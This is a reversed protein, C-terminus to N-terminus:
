SVRRELLGIRDTGDTSPLRVFMQFKNGESFRRVVRKLTDPKADLETVLDEISRPGKMLLHKIRQQLPLKSALSEVTALEVSRIRPQGGSFRLELGVPQSKRGLNNKKHFFAITIADDTAEETAQKLHWVSRSLNFFFVSGFISTSDDTAGERAKPLHALNLCGRGLRRVANFYGLAGEEDTLKGKVAPGISDVFLYDIQHAHIENALRDVSDVLPRTARVYRVHPMQAGFMEELRNRHEGADMEYDIFMPRVGLQSLRGAAHLGLMSKGTDGYAAWTMPQHKPFPLKDVMYVDDATSRPQEALVVSGDGTQEARRVKLALDDILVQWDVDDRSTKTLRQLDLAVSKRASLSSLNCNDFVQLTHDKLTYTGALACKITLSCRMEGNHDRRLQEVHFHSGAEDAEFVYTGDSIRYLHRAEEAPPPALSM